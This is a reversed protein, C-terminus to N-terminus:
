DCWLAYQQYFDIWKGNKQRYIHYVEAENQSSRSVIEPAGDGDIDILDVLYRREGVGIWVLPNLSPGDSSKKIITFVAANGPEQFFDSTPHNLVTADGVLIVSRPGEFAHIGPSKLNAVTSRSVKAALLKSKMLAIVEAREESTPERRRYGADRFQVNSALAGSKDTASNTHKVIASASGWECGSRFPDETPQVTGSNAGASYLIFKTGPVYFKGVLQKEVGEGDGLQKLKGNNLFGLVQVFTFTKSGPGGTVPDRPIAEIVEFVVSYSFLKHAFVGQAPAALLLSLLIRSTLGHKDPLALGQAKRHVGGPMGDVDMTQRSKPIALQALYVSGIAALSSLVLTTLM